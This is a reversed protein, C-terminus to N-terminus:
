FKQPGFKKQIWIKPAKFTKPGMIEKPVMFNLRLIKLGWIKKGLRKPELNKKGLRKPGFYFKKLGM